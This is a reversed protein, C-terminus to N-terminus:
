LPARSLFVVFFLVPLLLVLGAIILPRNPIDSVRRLVAFTLLVQLLYYTAFGRSAWTIIEFIDLTWILVLSASTVVIYGLRVTMSRGFTERLLGSAGVIDAIAASFQSAVAAVLLVAPALVAVNGLVLSVGTEDVNIIPYLFFLPCTLGIFAIYIASSLLQANRMTRVRTKADYAHGLYRSTEFGQAIMLLGGLIQARQWLTGEIVAKHEFYPVDTTIGFYVLMALIGAIISLKISVSVAELNEYGHLGRSMGVLALLLLVGTASWRVTEPTKMGLAQLVFAVLLVVYFAVSIVYAIGLIPSSLRDLRRMFLTARTLSEYRINLRIASGVGYAVIVIIAIALLSWRGALGHLLPAVVLFGSGIISALPTVTARWSANRLLAPRLMFVLALASVGLLIYNTSDTV